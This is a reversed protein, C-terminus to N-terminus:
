EVLLIVKALITAKTPTSRRPTAGCVRITNKRDSNTTGGEEKVYAM